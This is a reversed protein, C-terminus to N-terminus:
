FCAQATKSSKQVSICSVQFMKLSESTRQNLINIIQSNEAALNCDEVLQNCHINVFLLPKCNCVVSVNVFSM